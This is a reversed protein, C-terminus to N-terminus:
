GHRANSTAHLNDIRAHLGRIDQRVGKLEDKTDLRQTRIEAVLREERLQGEKRMAELAKEIRAVQMDVEETTPRDAIATHAHDVRAVHRRLAWWVVTWCAGLVFLGVAIVQAIPLHM